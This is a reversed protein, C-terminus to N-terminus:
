YPNSTRSSSNLNNYFNLFEETRPKLSLYSRKINELKGLDPIMAKNAAQQCYWHWNHEADQYIGDRIEGRRWMAYSYKMNIYWYVAEKFEVYDPILPFGDCDLPMAEYVINLCGNQISTKICGNTIKYTINDFITQSNDGEFGTQAVFTTNQIKNQYFAYPRNSAPSTDVQLPDVANSTPLIPYNNYTVLTLYVLDDPLEGRYNHIDVKHQKSELQTFAGIKELAEASWELFNIFVDEEKLDLDRYVKAIVNKISVTKNYIM